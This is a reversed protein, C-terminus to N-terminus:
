VTKAGDKKESEKKCSSCYPCGDCSSGCSGKGKKKKVFHGVTVGVVIVAAAIVTVIEVASM